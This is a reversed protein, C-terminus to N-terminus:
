FTVESLEKQPSRRFESLPVICGRELEFDTANTARGSCTHMGMGPFLFSYKQLNLVRYHISNMYNESISGRRQAHFLGTNKM